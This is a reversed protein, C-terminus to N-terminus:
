TNMYREIFFDKNGKIIESILHHSTSTYKDSDYICDKIIGYHLRGSAFPEVELVTIDYYNKYDPLALDIRMYKESKSKDYPVNHNKHYEILSMNLREEDIDVQYKERINKILTRKRATVLSILTFRIRDKELDTLEDKEHIQKLIQDIYMNDSELKHARIMVLHNILRFAEKCIREIDDRYKRVRSELKKDTCVFDKNLCIYGERIRKVLIYQIKEDIVQCKLELYRLSFNKKQVIVDGMTYCIKNHLTSVNEAVCGSGSSYPAKIYMGDYKKNPSYQEIITHKILDHDMLWLHYEVKNALLENLYVSSICEGGIALREVGQTYVIKDINTYIKREGIIYTDHRKYAYRYVKIDDIVIDKDCYWAIYETDDNDSTFRTLEILVPEETKEREAEYEVSFYEIFKFKPVNLAEYDKAKSIYFYYYYTSSLYEQERENLKDPDIDKYISYHSLLKM